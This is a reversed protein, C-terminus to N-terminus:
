ERIMGAAVTENTNEDIFILCGTARNDKYEDYFLPKATRIKIAASPPIATIAPPRRIPFFLTLDPLNIMKSPVPRPIIPKIKEIITPM